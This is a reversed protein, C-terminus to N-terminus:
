PVWMVVYCSSVAMRGGLVPSVRLSVALGAKGASGSSKNNYKKIFGRICASM